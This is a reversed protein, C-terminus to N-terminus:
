MESAPQVDEGVLLLVSDYISWAYLNWFDTSTYFDADMDFRDHPKYDQNSNM